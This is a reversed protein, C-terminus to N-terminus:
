PAEGDGARVAGGTPDANWSESIVRRMEPTALQFTRGVSRPAPFWKWLFVGAVTPEREVARLAARLCDRQITAAPLDGRGSEWPRVAASPSRDYGLETFLVPRRHTGSFVRLRSMWAEWGARIEAETPESEETLPFYAQIGIADLANWFPVEEFRDWNAAYTLSAPTSKRVASILRRWRAEHALTRDLEAGVVFADAERSVRALSVIWNRYSEWFRAWEAKGEFGIEGRWRFPSGWYALHPKIMVKLGAAHAERIPRAIEEPGASPDLSRFRM